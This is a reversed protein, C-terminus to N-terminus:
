GNSITRIGISFVSELGDDPPKWGNRDPHIPLSLKGGVNMHNQFASEQDLFVLGCDPEYSGSQLSAAHKDKL